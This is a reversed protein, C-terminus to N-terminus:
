YFGSWSKHRTRLWQRLLLLPILNYRGNSKYTFRESTAYGIVLLVSRKKRLKIKRATATEDSDACVGVPSSGKDARETTATCASLAGSSSPVSFSTPQCSALSM